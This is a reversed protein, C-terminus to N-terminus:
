LELYSNKKLQVTSFLREKPSDTNEDTPNIWEGM